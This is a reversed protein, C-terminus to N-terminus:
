PKVLGQPVLSGSGYVLAHEAGQFIVADIKEDVPRGFEDFFSDLETAPRDPTKLMRYRVADHLFASIEKHLRDLNDAKAHHGAHLEVAKQLEEIQGAIELLKQGAGYDSNGGVLGEGYSKLWNVDISM